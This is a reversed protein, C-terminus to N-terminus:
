RDPAAATQERALQMSYEAVLRRAEAADTIQRSEIAAAVDNMAGAINQMITIAAAVDAADEAESGPIIRWNGDTRRFHLVDGAASVLTATDNDIDERARPEDLRRLIDPGPGALGEFQRADERGFRARAQEQLRDSATLLKIMAAVYQQQSETETHFVRQLVDYDRHQIAYIASAVATRPTSLDDVVVVREGCGAIAALVLLCILHRLRPM